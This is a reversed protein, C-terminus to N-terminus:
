GREPLSISVLLLAVRFATSSLAQACRVLALTQHSVHPDNSPAATDLAGCVGAVIDDVFTFDRALETGNPGQPRM